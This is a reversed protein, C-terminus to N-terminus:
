PVILDLRMEIRRFSELYGLDLMAPLHPDDLSINETNTDQAPHRTHLAHLLAQGVERPDGMETQMVLRGLQFVTNQYVVWGRGGHKLEVQLAAINGANELSHAENLWAPVGRYGRLLGIAQHHDMVQATYPMPLAVKGWESSPLGPPRRLVLLERVECFGLKKFLRYAPENGRIVELIVYKSGLRASQEILYEMLAQGVHRQRTIPLVGLRTAWSHEPRAGLMALGLIQSGELAVVSADMNVDYNRVYERLRAVNMPMPVIYDVRTQNYARTLEEWSFQSAPLLRVPSLESCQCSWPPSAKTQAQPASAGVEPQPVSSVDSSSSPPLSM